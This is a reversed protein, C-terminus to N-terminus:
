PQPLDKATVSTAEDDATTSPTELPFYQVNAKLRLDAIWKQRVVAAKEQYLISEADHIRSLRIVHYGKETKIPASVEGLKMSEIAVRLAPNLRSPMLGVIAGGQYRTASDASYQLALQAMEEGRQLRAMLDVAQSLAQHAAQAPSDSEPIAILIQEIDYAVTDKEEAKRRAEFEAVEEHTITVKQAIARHILYQDSEKKRVLERLTNEDLLSKRLFLRYAEDSSFRRRFTKLLDNVNREVVERDIEIGMKQAAQTLLVRDIIGDLAKALERADQDTQIASQAGTQGWAAERVESLTILEGNVAAVVRDWVTEAANAGLMLALIGIWGGLFCGASHFLPRRADHLCIM